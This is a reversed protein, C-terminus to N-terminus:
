QLQRLTPLSPLTYRRASSFPLLRTYFRGVNKWAAAIRYYRAGNEASGMGTDQSASSKKTANERYLAIERASLM